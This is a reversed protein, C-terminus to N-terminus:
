AQKTPNNFVSEIGTAILGAHTACVTEVAWSDSLRVSPMHTHTTAHKRM